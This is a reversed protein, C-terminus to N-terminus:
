RESERGPARDADRTPGPRRLGGPRAIDDALDGLVDLPVDKRAAVALRVQGSPHAALLLWCEPCFATGCELHPSARGGAPGAPDPSTRPRTATRDRPPAGRVAVVGCRTVSRTGMLSRVQVAAGPARASPTRTSRHPVSRNSWRCRPRPRSQRCRGPCSLTRSRASWTWWRLCNVAVWGWWTFSRRRSPGPSPGRILDAIATDVPSKKAEMVATTLDAIGASRAGALGAALERTDEDARAIQEAKDAIRRVSPKGARGTSRSRGSAVGSRRCRPPRLSM